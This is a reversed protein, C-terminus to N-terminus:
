LKDRNYFSSYHANPAHTLPDGVSFQQVIPFADEFKDYMRWITRLSMSGEAM